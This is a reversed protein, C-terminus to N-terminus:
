SDADSDNRWISRLAFFAALAIVGNIVLYFIMNVPQSLDVGTQFLNACGCAGLALVVVLVSSAVASTDRKM